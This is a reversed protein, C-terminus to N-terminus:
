RAPPTFCYLSIEQDKWPRRSVLRFEPAMRDLLGTLRAYDDATMFERHLTVYRVGLSTLLNVSDRDPFARLNHGTAIYRTSVFGSYGNVLAQWHYTSYYMYTPDERSIPLELLVAPQPDGKRRVFPVDASLGRHRMLDAYVEPVDWPVVTIRRPGAWTDAVIAALLGATLVATGAGSLRSRLRAVGFGALVALALGAMLGMRAPVRLSRLVFAHDYLWAYGPANFGLSLDVAVVLGAAYALRAASVPPWLAVM